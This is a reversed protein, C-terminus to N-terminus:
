IKIIEKNLQNLIEFWVKKDIYETKIVVENEAYFEIKYYGSENIWAQIGILKGFICLHLADDIYIQLLKPQKIVKVM